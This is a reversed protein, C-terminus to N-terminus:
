WAALSLPSSYDAQTRVPLLSIWDSSTIPLLGMGRLKWVFLSCGALNIACYLLKPLTLDVGQLQLPAFAADLALLQRFPTAGMQVLFFISWLNLRNGIMLWMMVGSQLLQAGQAQALQMAKAQLALRRKDAEAESTPAAEGLLM